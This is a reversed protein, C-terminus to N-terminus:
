PKAQYGNRGQIRLHAAAAAAITPSTLKSCVGVSHPAMQPPFDSSNTYIMMQIKVFDRVM